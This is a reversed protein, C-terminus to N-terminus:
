SEQMLDLNGSQQSSEISMHSDEDISAEENSLDDEEEAEEEEEGDSWKAIDEEAVKVNLIDQPIDEDALKSPDWKINFRTVRPKDALINRKLLDIQAPQPPIERLSLDEYDNDVYYGVRIFEQDLYSCIVLVVTM